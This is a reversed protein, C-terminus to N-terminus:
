SIKEVKEYIMKCLNNFSTGVLEKWVGEPIYDCMPTLIKNAVYDLIQKAENKTM